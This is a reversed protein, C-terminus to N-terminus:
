SPTGHRQVTEFVTSPSEEILHCLLHTGDPTTTCCGQPKEMYIDSEVEANLFSTVVDMQKIEWDNYCALSM